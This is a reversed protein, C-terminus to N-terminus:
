RKDGLARRFTEWIQMFAPPIVQAADDARSLDLILAEIEALREPRHAHARVIEELLGATAEQFSSSSANRTGDNLPSAGRLVVDDQDALLGRLLTLFRDENNVVLRLIQADRDEPAGYVPLNRVLSHTLPAASAHLDFAVLGTIHAAQCPPLSLAGGWLSGEITTSADGALSVLRTVIQAIGPLEVAQSPRLTGVWGLDSAEFRLDMEVTALADRAADLASQAEAEMPDPQRLESRRYPVLLSGMGDKSIFDDIGKVRSRRGSLEALIEVNRGDLLAASTANASGVYIHTDRGRKAIYAKAHLGTLSPPPTEEGGETSAADDLIFTELFDASVNPALGDLEEARSILAVPEGTTQALRELAPKTVFPSIVLLRDSAELRLPKRDFGLLHFQVDDFGEPLEWETREIEYALRATRERVPGSADRGLDPLRSVLQALPRNKRSVRNRIRGELLLSLDWSRDATLNRSMVLLRLVPPQDEATAEFRLVWIKPHFAGGNPARAEVIMPELLGFLVHREAPANIRGADVFVTIKSSIRRLAQLLAIANREIDASPEAQALALHVPVTLLSTLDLSYSTAIGEDLRYGIPPALADVYLRRNDPALM